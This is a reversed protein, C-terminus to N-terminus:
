PALLESGLRARPRAARNAGPRRHAVTVVVLASASASPNAIAVTVVMKDTLEAKASFGGVTVATKALEPGVVPPWRTV